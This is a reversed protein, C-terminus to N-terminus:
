VFVFTYLCIATSKVEAWVKVSTPDGMVNCDGSTKELLHQGEMPSLSVLGLSDAHLPFHEPCWSLGTCHHAQGKLPKVWVHGGPLMNRLRETIGHAHMSLGGIFCWHGDLNTVIYV